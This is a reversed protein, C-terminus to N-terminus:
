KEDWLIRVYTHDPGWEWFETGVVAKWEKNYSKLTIYIMNDSVFHITIIAKAQENEPFIIEIDISLASIPTDVVNRIFGNGELCIVRDSKSIIVPYVFSLYAIGDIILKQPPNYEDRKPNWDEKWFNYTESKIWVGYIINQCYLVNVSFCLLIVSISLFFLKKM